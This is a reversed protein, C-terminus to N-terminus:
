IRLHVEYIVETPGPAVAQSRVVNYESGQVEIRDGTIPKPIDIALIRIDGFKIVTNDIDQERYRTRVALGTTRSVTSVPEENFSNGQGDVWIFGKTLPDYQKTYVTTDTSRILTVPIGFRQILPRAVTDQLAIYDYSM